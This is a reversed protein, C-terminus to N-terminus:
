GKFEKFEKVEISKTDIVEKIEPNCCYNRISIQAVKLNAGEESHFLQINWTSWFNTNTKTSYALYCQLFDDDDEDKVKATIYYM